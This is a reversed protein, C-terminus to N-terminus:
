EPALARIIPALRHELIAAAPTPAVAYTLEKLDRRTLIRTPLYLIYSAALSAPYALQWPAGIFILPSTVAVPIMLLTFITRWGTRYGTRSVAAQVAGLGTLAGILYSIAVGIGGYLPALLSYLVLRSITSSMGVGLVDRYREYVYLLYGLGGSITTFIATVSLITLASSAAAYQQGLLTLIPRPYAAVAIALPSILALSIRLARSLARKRGDRMGAMVPMLQRLLSGGMGAVVASIAFAIYYYGTEVSGKAAYVAIVGFQQGTIIVIGPLWMVVGAKMLWATTHINPKVIGIRISRISALIEMAVITANGAIYGLVAGVFGYGYVVLILGIALKSASGVTNSILIVSTRLKAVLIPEVIGGIGIMVLILALLMVTTELEGLKALRASLIVVVATAVTSITRISLAATFLENTGRRDRVEGSHRTLSSSIGLDAAGSIFSATAAVLSTLGLVSPGAIASIVLWYAFGTLNNVISRLYLYLGGRIVRKTETGTEM